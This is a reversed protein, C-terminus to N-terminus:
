VLLQIPATAYTPPLLREVSFVGKKLIAGRRAPLRCQVTANLRDACRLQDLHQRLHPCSAGEATQNTMTIPTISPRENVSRPLSPAKAKHLLARTKM